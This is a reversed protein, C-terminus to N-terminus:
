WSALLTTSYHPGPEDLVAVGDDGCENGELRPGKKKCFLRGRCEVVSKQQGANGM